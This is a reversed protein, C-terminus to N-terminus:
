PWSGDFGHFETVYFCAPHLSFLRLRHPDVPLARQCPLRGTKMDGALARRLYGGAAEFAKGIFDMIPLPKKM